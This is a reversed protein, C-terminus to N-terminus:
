EYGKIRKNEVRKNKDTQCVNKAAEFTVLGNSLITPRGGGAKSYPIYWAREPTFSKAIWYEGCCTVAHYKDIKQWTLEIQDM